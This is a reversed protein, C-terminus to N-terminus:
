DHASRRGDADVAVPLHARRFRSVRYGKRAGVWFGRERAVPVGAHKQAGLRQYFWDYDPCERTIVTTLAGESDPDGVNEVVVVRPTGTRAYALVHWADVAGRGVSADTKGHKRKSFQTCDPSCVHLDCWEQTLHEPVQGADRLIQSDPLCWAEALVRRPEDGCEAAWMYGMHHRGRYAALAAAFFDVGSCASSYWVYNPLLRREDLWELILTAVGSHIGKGAMRVAVAPDPVARLAATLPSDDHLGCARCVELVSMYRQQGTLWWHDSPAAIATPLVSEHVVKRLVDVPPFGGEAPLAPRVKDGARGFCVVGHAGVRHLGWKRAYALPGADAPSGRCPIAPVEDIWADFSPPDLRAAEPIGMPEAYVCRAAARRMSRDFRHVLSSQKAADAGAWEQQYFDLILAALDAQRKNGEARVRSVFRERCAGGGLLLGM